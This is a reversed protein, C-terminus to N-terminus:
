VVDNKTSGDGRSRGAKERRRSAQNCLIGLAKVVLSTSVFERCVNSLPKDVQVCLDSFYSGQKSKTERRKYNGKKDSIESRIPRGRM